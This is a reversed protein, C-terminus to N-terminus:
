VVSVFKQIFCCERLVVRASRQARTHRDGESM